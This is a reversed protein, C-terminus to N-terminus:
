TPTPISTVIVSRVEIRRDVESLHAVINCDASHPLNHQGSLTACRVDGISCM